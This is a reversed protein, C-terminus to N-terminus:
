GGGRKVRINKAREKWIRENGWTEKIIERMWERMREKKLLNPPGLWDLRAM